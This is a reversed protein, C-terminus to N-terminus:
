TERTSLRETLMGVHASFVVGGYQEALTDELEQYSGALVWEARRADDSGKVAPLEVVEGLDARAAVTVAWAEQSGRPDPVHRPEGPRWMEEPVVLGTEELLERAAAAAPTEGDDIGGGPIAWGLGDGREILLLYRSGACVATVIADAMPNEAWRYFQNRGRQVRAPPGPNVPRRGVVQFPILAAAQRRPWDITAPDAPDHRKPNTM